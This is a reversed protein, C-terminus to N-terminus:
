SWSNSNSPVIPISLHNKLMLLPPTRVDPLNDRQTYMKVKEKETKDRDRDKGRWEGGNREDRYKIHSNFFLHNLTGM